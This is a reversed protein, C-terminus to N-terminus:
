WETVRCEETLRRPPRRLRPPLPEDEPDPVFPEVHPVVLWEKRGYYPKVQASARQVKQGNLLSEWIYVSGDMVVEVIRYVGNWKPNLKRCTGPVTTESKVWVLAGVELRQNKRVRNAVDRYRRSMKQHTERILAHAEALEDTEGDVSPLSASVLRPPHRSFFTFYPQQGTSTHVAQNM